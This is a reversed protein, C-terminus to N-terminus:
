FFIYFFPVSEIRRASLITIPFDQLMSIPVYASMSAGIARGSLEADGQAM